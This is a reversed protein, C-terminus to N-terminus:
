ITTQPDTEGRPKILPGFAVESLGLGPRLADLEGHTRVIERQAEGLANVAASVRRLAPDGAALTLGLARRADMMQRLLRVAKALADDIATETDFLTEAVRTAVLRRDMRM